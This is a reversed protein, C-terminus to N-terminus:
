VARQQQIQKRELEDLGITIADRLLDLHSIPEGTELVRKAALIICRDVLKKPIRVVPSVSVRLTYGICPCM